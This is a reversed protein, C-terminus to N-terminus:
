DVAVIMTKLDMRRLRRELQEAEELSDVRGVRVRYLRRDTSDTPHILIPFFTESLRKKLEYANERDSFAGVQVSFKAGAPRRVGPEPEPLKLVELRVPAVGALHLKKAAAFSLDIVRGEIFPGRDNVRVTVHRGNKLHHVRVQTGFPLTRHAATMGYMDYTEGNATRRGHFRKGYWSAIGREGQKVNISAAPPSSTAPVRRSSRLCGSFVALGLMTFVVLVTGVTRWRPDLPRLSGCFNRTM